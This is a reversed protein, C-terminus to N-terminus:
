NDGEERCQQKFADRLFSTEYMEWLRKWCKVVREVVKKKRSTSAVERVCVLNPATSPREIIRSCFLKHAKGVEKCGEGLGWVDVGTMM